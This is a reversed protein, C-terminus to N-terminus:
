HHSVTVNPFNRFTDGHELQCGVDSHDEFEFVCVFSNKKVHKKAFEEARKKGMRKAIIDASKWLERSLKLQEEEFKKIDEKNIIERKRKERESHELPKIVMKSYAEKEAEEYVEYGNSLFACMEQKGAPKKNRIQDWMHAALVDTSIKEKESYTKSIEESAGYVMKKLDITSKPRRPFVVLFSSSSSNSVFGARTKM